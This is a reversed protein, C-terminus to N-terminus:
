AAHDSELLGDNIHLVIEEPTLRRDECFGAESYSTTWRQSLSGHVLYRMSVQLGASTEVVRDIRYVVHNDTIWFSGEDAQTLM